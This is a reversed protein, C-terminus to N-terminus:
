SPRETEPNPIDLGAARLMSDLDPNTAVRVEFGHERCAAATTEGIAVSLPREPRAEAYARVASPSCFFLIDDPGPAAGPAVAVTRYLPLDRVTFGRDALIHLPAVMRKEPGPLLVTAPPMVRSAFARALEAGDKGAFGLHDPLGHEALAAATGTGLCGVRCGETELGAEVFARVGRPSTFLIWDVGVTVTADPAPLAEFDVLPMDLVPLGRSRLSEVWPRNQEKQRTLVCRAM